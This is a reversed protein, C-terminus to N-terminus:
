ESEEVSLVCIFSIKYRGEFELIQNGEFKQVNIVPAFQVREKARAGASAM